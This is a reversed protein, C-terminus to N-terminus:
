RAAPGAGEARDEARPDRARRLAHGRDHVAWRGRGAPRPPLRLLGSRAPGARLRARPAPAAARRPHHRRTRPARGGAAPRDAPHADLALAGLRKLAQIAAALVEGVADDEIPLAVALETPPEGRVALALSGVSPMGRARGGRGEGGESPLGRLPYRSFPASDVV